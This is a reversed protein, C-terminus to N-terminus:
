WGSLANSDSSVYVGPHLRSISGVKVLQSLRTALTAFKTPFGWENLKNCLTRASIGTDGANVVTGIIARTKDGLRREIM